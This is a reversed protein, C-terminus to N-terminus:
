WHLKKDQNFVLNLGDLIKRKKDDSPYIFSIDKFEIKGKVSNRPPKKTSKSIDIIPIREYLTFYDSSADASEQITKFNPSAIGVSLIAMVTSFIVTMVDAGSFKKNTNSNWEEDAILKKGYLVALVFSLHLVFIIAGISIGMKLAKEKEYENVKDIYKGFREKEFDFNVFSAVTKINYLMEEAIGGAREYTKRSLVIVTKMSTIMYIICLLLLPAICLMVLTLKWSTTFGIALGSVLASIMVFIEGVKQGLGLEIQELQAQVKTAFEFANNGDFWGQEQRLIHYFYKEKLHYIQLLGVYNWMSYMLFASIFTGAGIYLIENVMDDVTKEFEKYLIAIETAPVASLDISTFSSFDGLLDGFLYTMLPAAVGTGFSGIIGLIM